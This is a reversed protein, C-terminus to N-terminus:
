YKEPTDTFWEILAPKTKLHSLVWPVYSANGTQAVCYFDCLQRHQKNSNRFRRIPHNVKMVNIIITILCSIPVSIIYITNATEM